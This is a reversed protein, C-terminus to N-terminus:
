LVLQFLFGQLMLLVAEFSVCTFLVLWAGNVRQVRRKERVVILWDVLGDTWWCLCHMCLVAYVPTHMLIYSLLALSNVLLVQRCRCMMRVDQGRIMILRSDQGLRAYGLKCNMGEISQLPLPLPWVLRKRMDLASGIRTSTMQGGSWKMPLLCFPYSWEM